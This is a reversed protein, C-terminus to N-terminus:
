LTSSPTRFFPLARPSHWPQRWSASCPAFAASHAIPPCVLAIHRAQEDKTLIAVQSGEWLLEQKLVDFEENSMVPAGSDYFSQLAMLFDQEKEGLTRQRKNIDCFEGINSDM